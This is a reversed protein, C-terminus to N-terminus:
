DRARTIPLGLGPLTLCLLLCAAVTRAIGLPAPDCSPLQPSSSGPFEHTARARGSVWFRIVASPSPYYTVACPHDEPSTRVLPQNM